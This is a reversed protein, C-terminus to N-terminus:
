LLRELRHAIESHPAAGFLRDMPKGQRFFILTPTGMVEYHSTSLPNQDINVRTFKVRGAFQVALQDITPRLAQCSPCRASWFEVLVIGPFLLVEERFTGDTVQVSGKSFSGIGPLDGHCRGCFAREAARRRPIRNKV